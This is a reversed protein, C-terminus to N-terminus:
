RTVRRAVCLCHLHAESVFREISEIEFGDALLGRLYTEDAYLGGALYRDRLYAHLPGPVWPMLASGLRRAATQPVSPSAPHVTSFAFRGGRRLWSHVRGVLEAQLPVHEALVGISYVLDFSGASFDHALADGELLTVREVTIAAERFPHAALALMAPSADLGVLTRVNQLASFYRGTGCGIELADASSTFRACVRQLWAVFGLYPGSDVLSDDHSRYRDAYAADYLAAAKAAWPTQEAKTM